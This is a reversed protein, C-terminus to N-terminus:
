GPKGAKEGLVREVEAQLADFLFPKQLTGSAGSMLAVGKEAQTNRATMIIFKPARDGLQLSANQAVHYGDMGPMMVDLLVLDLPENMIVHLAENGSAATLTEFGFCTLGLVVFECIEADDDAILVRKKLRQEL